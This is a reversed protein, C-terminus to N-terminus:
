MKTLLKEMLQILKQLELLEHQSSRCRVLVRVTDKALGPRGAALLDRRSMDLEDLPAVLHLHQESTSLQPPTLLPSSSFHSPTPLLSSFHPPTLLLSSSHPPTLLFSSSHPPTLILSYFLPHTPLALSSFLPNILFGKDSYVPQQAGEGEQLHRVATVRGIPKVRLSPGECGRM